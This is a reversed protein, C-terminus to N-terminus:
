SSASGALDAAIEKFLTEALEEVAAPSLAPPAMRAVVKSVITRLVEQEAVLPETSPVPEEPTPEPAAAVEEELLPQESPEPAPEAVMAPPEETVLPPAAAEAVAAPEEPAAGTPIEVASALEEPVAAAPLREEVQPVLPEETM